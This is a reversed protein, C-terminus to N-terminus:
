SAVVSELIVSTSLLSAENADSWSSSWLSLSLCGVPWVTLFFGAFSHNGVVVVVVVVFTWNMCKWSWSVVASSLLSAEKDNSWSPDPLLVVMFILSWRVDDDAVVIVGCHRVGPDAIALIM